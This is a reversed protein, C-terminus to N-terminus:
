ASRVPVAGLRIMEEEARSGDGPHVDVPRIADTLLVVDWGRALADKVTHLVCYDTALGGVVLRRVGAARLRADLDGGAFASYTDQQPETDKSVVATDRPLGLGPALEAGPTGQVCHPPWSGGRDRFSAHDRPHWDRTAFVPLGARRFEEVHGALVPVVEDGAPVALAGGPLFDRQVDVVVLADGPAPRFTM